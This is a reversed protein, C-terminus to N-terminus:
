AYQPFPVANQLSSFSTAKIDQGDPSCPKRAIVVTRSGISSMFKDTKSTKLLKFSAKSM